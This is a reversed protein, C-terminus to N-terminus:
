IVIHEQPAAILKEVKGNCKPCRTEEDSKFVIKEFTHGCKKCKSEYVPMEKVKREIL